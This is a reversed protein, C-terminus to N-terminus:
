PARPPPAHEGLWDRLRSVLERFWAMAATDSEDDLMWNGEYAVLRSLSGPPQPTAIVHEIAIVAEVIVKPNVHLMGRVDRELLEWDSDHVYYHLFRRVIDLPPPPPAARRAELMKRLKENM